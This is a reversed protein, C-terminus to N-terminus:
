ESCPRNQEQDTIRLDKLRSHSPINWSLLAFSKQKRKAQLHYINWIDPIQQSAKIQNLLQLLDKCLGPGAYIYLKPQHDDMGPSKGKKLKAIVKDLEEMSFPPSVESDSQLWERIVQNTEQVHQEWGPHPERTRLRHKFEEKYAEKVAEEGSVEVGNEKLM